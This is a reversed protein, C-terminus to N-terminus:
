DWPTHAEEYLQYLTRGDWLGRKIRFEPRECDITMTDATYAQLKVADVGAAACDELIALARGLDGNHTGSLEAIVYPPHDAGIPRGAIAYSPTMAFGAELGHVQTM